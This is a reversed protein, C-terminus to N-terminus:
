RSDSGGSSRPGNELLARPFRRRGGALADELARTADEFVGEGHGVLVRDPELRRLSRPPDLRRLLELGLREEDVTFPAITGMSDPVYLTGHPEAHLIAETWTPMPECRMVRHLSKTFSKEVREQVLEGSPGGDGNGNGDDGGGMCGALMAAGGIAGSKLAMRRTLWDGNGNNDAVMLWENM